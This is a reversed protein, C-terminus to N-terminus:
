NMQEEISHSRIYYVGMGLHEDYRLAMTASKGVWLYEERNSFPKAGVGYKEFVFEKLAEFDSVQEMVVAVVYFKGKWFGYRIPLLKGNKLRYEDGTRFYFDIGGYSLDKRHYKMGQLTSLETEWKIGNFGEPESGQKFSVFKCNENPLYCPIDQAYHACGTAMALFFLILISILRKM